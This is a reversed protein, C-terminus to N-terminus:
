RRVDNRQEQLIASGGISLPSVIRILYRGKTAPDPRIGLMGNAVVILKEDASKPRAIDGWQVGWQNVKLDGVRIEAKLRTIKGLNQVYYFVRIPAGLGFRDPVISGGTFTNGFKPVYLGTIMLSDNSEGSLTTGTLCVNSLNEKPPTPIACWVLQNGGENSLMPVAYAPSGAPVVIRKGSLVDSTVRGGYGYSLNGELFPENHGVSERVHPPEAFAIPVISTNIEVPRLAQPPAPQASLASLGVSAFALSMGNFIKM